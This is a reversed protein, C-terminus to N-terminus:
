LSVIHRRKPLPGFVDAGFDATGPYDAYGLHALGFYDEISRLM